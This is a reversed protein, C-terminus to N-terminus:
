SPHGGRYWHGRVRNVILGGNFHGVAGDFADGLPVPLQKGGSVLQEPPGGLNPESGLGIGPKSSLRAV